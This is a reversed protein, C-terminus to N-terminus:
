GLWNAFEDDKSARRLENDKRSKGLSALTHSANVDDGSAETWFMFRKVDGVSRVHCNSTM